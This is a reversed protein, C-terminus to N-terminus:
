KKIVQFTKEFSTTWSFDQMLVKNLVMQEHYITYFSSGEQSQENTTIMMAKGELVFYPSDQINPNKPIVLSYAPFHM